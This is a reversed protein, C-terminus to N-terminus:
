RQLRYTSTPRNHLNFTLSFSATSLDIISSNDHTLAETASAEETFLVFHDFHASAVDFALGYYGTQVYQIDDFTGLSTWHNGPWFLYGDDRRSLRSPIPEVAPPPSGTDGTDDDTDADAHAAPKSSDDSTGISTITPSIVQRTAQIGSCRALHHLLPDWDKGAGDLM